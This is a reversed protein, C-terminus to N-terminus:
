RNWEAPDADWRIAPDELLQEVRRATIEDSLTERQDLNMELRGLRQRLSTAELRQLELRRTFSQRVAQRLSELVEARRPDDPPVARARSAQEAAMREARYYRQRAIALTTEDDVSEPEPHVEDVELALDPLSPLTFRDGGDGSDDVEDSQPTAPHAVKDDNGDEGPTLVVGYPVSMDTERAPEPSGMPGMPGAPVMSELDTGMGGGRGTDYRNWVNSREAIILKLPVLRLPRRLPSADSSEPSGAAPSDTSVLNESGNTGSSAAQGGPRAGAGMMRLDVMGTGMGMGRDRDTGMDMGMGMGMGTDMEMETGPGMDASYAHIVLLVDEGDRLSKERLSTDRPGYWPMVVVHGAPIWLATGFHLHTRSNLTSTVPFHIVEEEVLQSEIQVHIADDSRDTSNVPVLMPM